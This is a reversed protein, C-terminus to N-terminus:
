HPLQSNAKISGDVIHFYTKVLMTYSEEDLQRLYDLKDYFTKKGLLDTMVEQIKKLRSFDYSENEVESKKLARILANKEFLLHFGMTSQKLIAEM